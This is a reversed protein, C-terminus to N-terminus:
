EGAGTLGQIVQEASETRMNLIRTAPLLPAGAAQFLSRVARPYCAAIRLEGQAALSALHVDHRASMECLDPVSEWEVDSSALQQLVENKVEPTIVRAYACHCYVIHV